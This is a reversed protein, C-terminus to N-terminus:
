ARLWPQLGLVWVICEPGACFLAACRVVRDQCVRCDLRACPMADCQVGEYQGYVTCATCKTCGVEIKACAAILGRVYSWDHCRLVDGLAASPVGRTEWPVGAFDRTHLIGHGAPHACRTFYSPPEVCTHLIGSRMRSAPLCAAPSLRWDASFRCPARLLTWTWGAAHSQVKCGQAGLGYRCGGHRTLVHLRQVNEPPPEATGRTFPEPHTRHLLCEEPALILTPSPGHAAKHHVQAPLPTHTWAAATQGIGMHSGHLSGM